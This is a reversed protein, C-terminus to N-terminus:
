IEVALYPLCLLSKSRFRGDIRGFGTVMCLDPYKPWSDLLPLKTARTYNDFDVPKNLKLIAIDNDAYVTYEKHVALALVQFRLELLEPVRSSIDSLYITM